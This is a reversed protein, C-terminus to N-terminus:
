AIPVEKRGAAEKEAKMMTRLQKIAGSSLALKSDWNSPIGALSLIGPDVDKCISVLDTVMGLEYNSRLDAHISDGETLKVLILMVYFITGNDGGLQAHSKPKAAIPKCTLPTFHACRNRVEVITRLWSSLVGYEVHFSDAIRRRVDKSKVNRYLKSLTGLPIIDMAQWVPLDGYKDCASIISDNGAKKKFGLEREYTELFENYFKEIKFNESHRHAFPGYELALENAMKAKFHSEFVGIWKMAATRLDRDLMLYSHMNEITNDVDESREIISCYQRLINYNVREVLFEAVKQDGSFGNDAFRSALEQVTLVEPPNEPDQFTESSDTALDLNQSDESMLFAPSHGCRQSTDGARDPHMMVRNGSFTESDISINETNVCGNGATPEIEDSPNSTKRASDGSALAEDVDACVYVVEGDDTAVPTAEPVPMGYDAMATLHTELGNSISEVADMFTEGQGFCGPLDPVEAWWGGDESKRLAAGYIHKTM